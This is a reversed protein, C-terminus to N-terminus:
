YCDWGSAHGGGYPQRRVSKRANKHATRIAIQRIEDDREQMFHGGADGGRPNSFRNALTYAVANGGQFIKIQDTPQQLKPFFSQYRLWLDLTQTAGIFWLKDDRWDWEGLYPLQLRLTMGDSTPVMFRFNSLTGSVREKVVLPVLCDAPLVPTGNQAPTNNNQGDFYVDYGIYVRTAPDRVAAPVATLNKLVTEKIPTELGKNALKNQVYEYASQLLIFGQSPSLGVQGGSGAALGGAALTYTFQNAAPITQIVQQGNYGAVSVNQVNVVDGINLNHVQNTTITVINGAQAAANIQIGPSADALLDGKISVGADLCITRVLQLVDEATPYPPLLIPIPM